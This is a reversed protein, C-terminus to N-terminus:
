IRNFTERGDGKGSGDEFPVFDSPDVDIFPKYEKPITKDNGTEEFYNYPAVFDLFVSGKKGNRNKLIKLELSRKEKKDMEDFLTRVRMEHNYSSEFGVRKKGDKTFHTKKYDMNLYQLGLLVDSSYEIGSSEKFSSSSVPRLYSDRNFASIALVPINLDRALVKMKTVDDDTLLRKDLRRQLADESARLIQLYDVIVLPATKRAKIHIETIERIKDIDVDNEGIYYFLHDNIEKTSELADDYLARRSEGIMGINGSLIDQTTLRYKEKVVDGCSLLYMERSISKALLEDSDMELSFILVDRGLRAVNDAIQLALSTKGLSSIAGLFILKKSHFGGSLREDLSPFGTRWVESFGQQRTNINLKLTELANKRSAKNLYESIKKREEEDPDTEHSSTEGPDRIQDSIESREEKHPLMVDHFLDEFELIETNDNKMVESTLIISARIQDKIEPSVGIEDLHDSIESIMESGSLFSLFGVPSGSADKPSEERWRKVISLYYDRFRDLSERADFEEIEKLFDPTKKQSSANQLM